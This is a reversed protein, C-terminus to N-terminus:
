SLYTAREISFIFFIPASVLQPALTSLLDVLKTYHHIWASNRKSKRQSIAYINNFISEQQSKQCPIEYPIRLHSWFLRRANWIDSLGCHFTSLFFKRIKVQNWHDAFISTKCHQKMKYIFTRENWHFFLENHMGELSGVTSSLHVVKLSLRTCSESWDFSEQISSGPALHPKVLKGLVVHPSTAHLRPRRPPLILFEGQRIGARVLPRISDCKYKLPINPFLLAVLREWLKLHPIRTLADKPVAGSQALDGLTHFADCISKTIEPTRELPASSGVVRVSCLRGGPEYSLHVVYVFLLQGGCHAGSISM